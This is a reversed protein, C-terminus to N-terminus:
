LNKKFDLLAPDNPLVKLGQDIIAKAKSVDGFVDRYVEALQIYLYTQKTDKSIAEKYYMEAMANNKLHYAYLFGLNGRSIFDTPARKSVYEWSLKAGEYDGAMKQYMGLDIWPLLKSSDSKIQTQLGVIKSTIMAKVEDTFVLKPDFYVKRNLDPVPIKSATNEIPVQEITYNPNNASLEDIIQQTTSANQNETTGVEEKKNILMYVALILIGIFVLISIIKQTKTMEM